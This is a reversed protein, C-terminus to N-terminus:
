HNVSGRGGIRLRLVARALKNKSAAFERMSEKQRLQEEAHMLQIKARNVDIEEPWEATQVTILTHEPGARMFGDSCAATRWSGDPKQIRVEGVALSAVMPAHGHLVGLEGDIAPVIVMKTQDHYFTREPTIIELLFTKDGDM